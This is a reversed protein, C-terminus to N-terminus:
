FQRRSFARQRRAELQKQQEPTLVPVVENHVANLIAQRQENLAKREQIDIKGSQQWGARAARAKGALAQMEPRHAQFIGQIQQRQERTLKLGRLELVIPRYPTRLLRAMPNRATMTRQPTPPVTQAIAPVVAILLAFVIGITTLISANYVRSGM